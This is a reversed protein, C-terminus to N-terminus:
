LYSIKTDVDSNRASPDATWEAFTAGDQIAQFKWRNLEYTLVKPNGDIVEPILGIGFTPRLPNAGRSYCLIGGNQISPNPTLVFDNNKMVLERTVIDFKLDQM